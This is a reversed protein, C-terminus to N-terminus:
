ITATQNSVYVINHTRLLLKYIISLTESIIIFVINWLLLLLFLFGEDTLFHEGDRLVTQELMLWCSALSFTFMFAVGWSLVLISKLLRYHKRRRSAPLFDTQITSWRPCYYVGSCCERSIYGSGFPSFRSIQSLEDYCWVIGWYLCAIVHFHHFVTHKYMFHLNREVTLSKLADSVPMRINLTSIPM